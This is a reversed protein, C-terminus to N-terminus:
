SSQESAGVRVRIKNCREVVEGLVEGVEVEWEDSAINSYIGGASEGM